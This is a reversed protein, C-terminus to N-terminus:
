HLAEKTTYVFYIPDSDSQTVAVTGSAIHTGGSNIVGFIFNDSNHDPKSGFAKIEYVGLVPNNASSSMANPNSTKATASMYYDSTVTLRLMKTSMDVNLYYDGQQYYGDGMAMYYNGSGNPTCGSQTFSSDTLVKNDIKTIIRGGYTPSYESFKYQNTGDFCIMKVKSKDASTLKNGYVDVPGAAIFKDIANTPSGGKVIYLNTALRLNEGIYSSISNEINKQDNTIRASVANKSIPEIMQMIGAMLIGFVAMSVVLEILTFAKLKKM